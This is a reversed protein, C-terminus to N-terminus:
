RIIVLKEQKILVKNPDRVIILYVGDAFGSLNFDVDELDILVTFEGHKSKIVFSNM